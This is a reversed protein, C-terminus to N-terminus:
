TDAMARGGYQLALFAHRLVIDFEWDYTEDDIDVLAAYRAMGVIDVVGDVKGLASRADTFLREVDQRQTADGSWPTGGVEKAIDDALDAERDVAVVRAGVQALAHTVQRGIGQGAGIVVFGRGDLRLLGGYDPVESDDTRSM